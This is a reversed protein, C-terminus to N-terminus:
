TRKQKAQWAALSEDGRRRLEPDDPPFYVECARWLACAREVIAMAQLEPMWSADSETGFETGISWDGITLSWENHRARFYLPVGDITGEIQVPAGACTVRVDLGEMM